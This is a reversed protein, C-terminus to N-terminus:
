LRAAGGMVGDFGNSSLRISFHDPTHGPTPVLWVKDDLAFDNSVMMARGAEVIPLVSDILHPLPTRKNLDEWYDYEKESFVYKANPFTPVWRGDLLKTNWGVHDTHMHTCMVYDIDEVSLGLAALGDMYQTGTTQHWNDRGPRDKHNGVCTDILITHHGTRVVYSQMPFILNGTVPDMARPQLWERHPAWDAELTQGFFEYPDFDPSNSEIIRDIFIGGLQRQTM